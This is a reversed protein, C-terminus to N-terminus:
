RSEFELTCIAFYNLNISNCTFIKFHPYDYKKRHEADFCFCCCVNAFFYERKAGRRSCRWWGLESSELRRRISLNTASFHFSCSASFFIKFIIIIFYRMLRSLHGVCLCVFNRRAAFFHWGTPSRVWRTTNWPFNVSKAFIAVEVPNRFLNKNEAKQALLTPFKDNRIM